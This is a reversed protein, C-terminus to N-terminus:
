KMNHSVKTVGKKKSSPSNFVIM